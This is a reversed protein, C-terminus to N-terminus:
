RFMGVHREPAIVARPAKAAEASSSPRAGADLGALSASPIAILIALAVDGILRRDIMRYEMRTWAANNSRVQAGLRENAWRLEM